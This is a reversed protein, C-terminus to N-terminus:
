PIERLLMRVNLSPNGAAELSFTDPMGPRSAALRIQARIQRGEVESADVLFDLSIVGNNRCNACEMPRTPQFFARRSIEHGDALLIAWFSGPIRLRNIGKLRISVPASRDIRVGSTAALSGFGRHRAVFLEDPPTASPAYGVGLSALDITQDATLSFPALTNFGPELFATSGTITSRFAWLTTAKMRQQWEWWLRDWNSHFFWFLPDFAAADPTVLTGGCAGHGADHAAEIGRSTYSIFDSWRPQAMASAIIGPINARTVESSITAADSRSTTYNAPITAHISRPLVYSDFPAEYLLPPPDSTIDWFPLTVSECGEITRLADEFRLLYARHWPNYRDEHHKCNFPVPYWHIGALAFYSMADDPSRGMLGEFARRLVEIESDSLDRADKRVRQATVRLLDAPEPEGFPHGDKIWNMLMASREQSWKRDLEPPMNANPPMTQFFVDTSRAKLGEYTSLDVGVSQMHELDVDDFFHRVHEMYTPHQIIEDPM